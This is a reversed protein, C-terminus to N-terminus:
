KYTDETTAQRNLSDSTIETRKGFGHSIRDSMSSKFGRKDTLFNHPFAEIAVVLVVFFFCITIKM